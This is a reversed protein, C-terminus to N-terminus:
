RWEQEALGLFLIAPPIIASAPLPRLFESRRSSIPACRVRARSPAASCSAPWRPSCGAMSCACRQRPWRAGSEGREEMAMFAACTRTPSPFFVPSILRADACLQWLYIMAAAFCVAGIEALHRAPEDRAQRAPLAAALAPRHRIAAPQVGLRRPRGVAARGVDARAEAIARRHDHRLRSGASQARDRGDGRRGARRRRQRPHRGRHAGDGGAIRYAAHPQLRPMELTRAVELLRPEIGRVASVTVILVPWVTAYTIVLVEMRVGFGYILLALPILAVAPIPRVTDLTPGVIGELMPSVGIFIGLIIGIISGLALGLLATQFTQATALLLSGDLLANWGAVAIESPQSMTDHPLVGTQAGIEWLVILVVPILAGRYRGLKM